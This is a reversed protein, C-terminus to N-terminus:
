STLYSLTFHLFARFKDNKPDKLFVLAIVQSHGGLLGFILVQSWFLFNFFLQCGSFQNRHQMLAQSEFVDQMKLKTLVMLERSLNCSYWHDQISHNSLVLEPV